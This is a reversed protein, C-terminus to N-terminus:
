QIEMKYLGTQGNLSTILYLYDGKKNVIIKNNAPSEFNVLTYINRQDRGDLEYIKLETATQCFSYVINPHWFANIIPQSSRELLIKQNVDPYYAWLENNNWFLFQDDHWQFDKVNNIVTKIPQNLNEPELLFLINQESDLLTLYNFNPNFFRYSSNPLSMLPNKENKIFELFYKNNKKVIALIDTKYNIISSVPGTTLLSTQNQLLNLQYLKQGSIGYLINDNYSDWILDAFRLKNLKDLPLIKNEQFPLLIYFKDRTTEKILVKQDNNSWSILQFAMKPAILPQLNKLQYLETLQSNSIDLLWLSADLGTIKTLVAFLKNPSQLMDSFEGEAIIQPILSDKLLSIDEIFSTSSPYITLTKQWEAYGDKKVKVQYNGPLLRNVQIPTKNKIKKNNIYIEANKPYSKIYFNGTKEFINKSWNYKFGLAYLIIFTSVALFLFIFIVYILRRVKLNM